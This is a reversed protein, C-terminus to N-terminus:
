VKRQFMLKKDRDILQIEVDVLYVLMTVNMHMLLLKLLKPCTVESIALSEKFMPNRKLGILKYM